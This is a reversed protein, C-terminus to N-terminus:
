KIAKIELHTSFISSCQSLTLFLTGLVSDLNEFVNTLDHLYESDQPSFMLFFFFVPFHPIRLARVKKHEPWLVKVRNHDSGLLSDLTDLDGTWQWELECM